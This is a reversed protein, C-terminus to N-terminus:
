HRGQAAQQGEPQGPCVEADRRSQTEQCQKADGHLDADDQDLVDILQPRAPARGGFCDTRGAHGLGVDPLHKGARKDLNPKALSAIQVARNM